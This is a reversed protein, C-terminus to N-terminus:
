VGEARRLDAVIERAQVCEHNHVHLTINCHLHIAQDEAVLIGYAPMLPTDNIFAEAMCWTQCMACFIQTPAGVRFPGVEALLERSAALKGAVVEPLERVETYEDDDDDDMASRTPHPLKTYLWAGFATAVLMVIAALWQGEALDFWAAFAMAMLSLLPLWRGRM